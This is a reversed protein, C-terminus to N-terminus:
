HRTSQSEETEMAEPAPSLKSAHDVQENSESGGHHTLVDEQQEMIEPRAQGSGTTMGDDASAAKRDDANAGDTAAPIDTADGESAVVRSPDGISDITGKEEEEMAIGQDEEVDSPKDDGPPQYPTYLDDVDMYKALQFIRDLISPAFLLDEPLEPSSSPLGKEKSYENHLYFVGCAIVHRIVFHLLFDDRLFRRIGKYEADTLKEQLLGIVHKELEQMQETLGQWKERSFQRLKSVLCFGM